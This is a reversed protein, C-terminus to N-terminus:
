GINTLHGHKSKQKQIITKSKKWKRLYNKKFEEKEEETASKAHKPRLSQISFGLYKLYRWGGVDSLKKGTRNFIWESVKHSNWLGGDPSEGEILLQKLELQDSESLIFKAGPNNHRRDVLGDPGYENYRKAIKGIWLTSYGLIESIAMATKGQILLRIIQLHNRETIDKCDRYRLELDELNLHNKLIIRRSM